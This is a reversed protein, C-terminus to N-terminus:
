KGELENDSYDLKKIFRAPNGAYLANPTLLDHTVVSGAGIICGEAITVDKLITANAGIWSYNGIVIPLSEHHKQAKNIEWNDTSYGSSIVSVGYSLSVGEGLTIGGRGYLFVNENITSKNGIVIRDRNVLKPVGYIIVEKRYLSYNFLKHTRVKVKVWARNIWEIMM